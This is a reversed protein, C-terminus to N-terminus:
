IGKANGRWGRWCEQVKLVPVVCPFQSAPRSRHRIQCAMKRRPAQGKGGDPECGASTKVAYFATGPLRAIMRMQDDGGKKRIRGGLMLVRSDSLGLRFSGAIIKGKRIIIM